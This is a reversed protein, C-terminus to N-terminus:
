FCSTIPLMLRPFNHPIYWSCGLVFSSDEWIVRVNCLEFKQPFQLFLWLFTTELTWYSLCGWILRTIVDQRSEWSGALEPGSRHRRPVCKACLLFRILVRGLTIGMRFWADEVVLCRPVKAWFFAVVNPSSTIFCLPTYISQIYHQVYEYTNLSVLYVYLSWLLVHALWMIHNYLEFNRWALM